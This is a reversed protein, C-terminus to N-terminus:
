LGTPKTSEAYGKEGCEGGLHPILSEEGVQPYKPGGHKTHGEQHADGCGVDHAVLEEGCSAMVQGKAQVARDQDDM